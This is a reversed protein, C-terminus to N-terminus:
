RLNEDLKYNECIKEVYKQIIDMITTNKISKKVM